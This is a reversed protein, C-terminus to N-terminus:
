KRLEEYVKVVQGALVSWTFKDKAARVGAEGMRQRLPVDDVLRGVARALEAEDGHPVLLGTEGDTITETLGGIRSGVCALGSAMAEMTTIGLAEARGNRDIIGPNVYLDSDVLLKAVDLRNLAGTLHIRDRATARNVVGEIAPRMPGDGAIALHADPRDRLIDDAAGARVHLGKMEVFRGLAMILTADAPIGHRERAGNGRSISGFLQDDYGQYLVVARIPLYGREKAQRMTYHSNFLIRDARRLTFLHLRTATPKLSHVSVVMPRGFRNGAMSLFAPEVWHAHILDAWEANRWVAATIAAFFAPLQWKARPYNRLNDPIGGGYAVCQRSQPVAYQFREIEVGEAVERMPASPHSPAIVRVKIGHDRVLARALDAVFSPTSDGTKLPYTTTVFLVRSVM